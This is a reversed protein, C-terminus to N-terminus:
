AQRLVVLCAVLLEVRSVLLVHALAALPAALVKRPNAVEEPAVAPQLGVAVEVMVVVLALHAIRHFSKMM